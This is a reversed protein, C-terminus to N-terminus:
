RVATARSLRPLTSVPRGIVHLEEAIAMAVTVGSAAAAGSASTTARSTPAAVTVAVASPCLPVDATVTVLGTSARASQTVRKSYVVADGTSKTFIAVIM